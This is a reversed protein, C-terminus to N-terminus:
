QSSLIILNSNKITQRINNNRTFVRYDGNEIFDKFCQIAYKPSKIKSISMYAYDFAEKHANTISSYTNDNVYLKHMKESETDIHKQSIIENYLDYFTDVKNDINLAMILIKTIDKYNVLGLTGFSALTKDKEVFILDSFKIISEGSVFIKNYEKLLFQYFSIFSVSNLMNKEKLTNIYSSIWDSVVSNYSLFGDWTVSINNDIFAFPNTNLLGNKLYEDANIHANIKDIADKNKVRLVVDDFRIHSSVKSYHEINNKLLFDFISNVGFYIHKKDLPIYIKLLNYGSEENEKSAFQCFYPNEKEIFVDINDKNSFQEIWKSFCDNINEKPSYISILNSYVLKSDIEIDNKSIEAILKLFREIEEIRKM